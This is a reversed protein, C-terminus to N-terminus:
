VCFPVVYMRIIYSYLLCMNTIEYVTSTSPYSFALEFVRMGENFVDQYHSNPKSPATPVSAERCDSDELEVRSAPPAAVPAPQASPSTPASSSATSGSRHGDVAKQEFDVLYLSSAEDADATDVGRTALQEYLRAKEALKSRRVAIRRYVTFTSKSTCTSYLTCFLM